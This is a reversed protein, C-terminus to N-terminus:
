PALTALETNVLGAGEQNTSLAPLNTATSRLLNLVQDPTYSPHTALILAATGAVHPTAMSTGSMTAYRKDPYTSYISAGPAAIDVEPGRSSWYPQGDTSDTATVAVAEEYKAPYIVTNDAPGSNGAAAVVTIGANKAAIIADHFAQIDATTGLSLNIVNINNAIAWQIGEIIDSTYGSGNRSLVKVAYLDIQPGVGVVGIANNLAAIIGAVHTGHGNDDNTSRWSVITNIGGKINSMLDPHDLDIGTDLIAVKVTDATSTAWAKEADIKDIGWPIPQTVPTPSAVPSPSPTPTPIPSTSPTPTPSPTPSPSTIPTPSPSPVPSPVPSTSPTPTPTPRPTRRHSLAFVQADEEVRAVKPNRRLKQIQNEDAALVQAKIKTLKKIRTARVEKVTNDQETQDGSKFTVIVRRNPSPASLALTPSVYLVTLFTLLVVLLRAFVYKIKYCLVIRPRWHCARNRNSRQM